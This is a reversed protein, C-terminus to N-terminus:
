DAVAGLVPLLAVQGLVSLSVMYPYFAGAAVRIGLPEVFGNPDAAAKTVSTLYPGLFVTVVTTPFASNAWDYFYWGVQERPKAMSLPSCSPVCPGDHALIRAMDPRRSRRVNCASTRLPSISVTSATKGSPIPRSSPLRTTARWKMSRTKSSPSWAHM